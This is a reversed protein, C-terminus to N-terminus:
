AWGPLLPVGILWAHGKLLMFTYLGVGVVVVAVDNLLSAPAAKSTESARYKVSIRDYIAFALFSGFLLLSALDGNALLHGLAWIKIAALMPHRVGTRIRSPILSAVLLVMAPLMLAFALHRAWVPPSWLQPNWGPGTQLHGFGVVIMVLGILAAVSFAIKYGGVGFSEVLRDKLDARTPVLHVAFFLALGAILLMM